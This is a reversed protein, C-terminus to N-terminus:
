QKRTDLKLGVKLGMHVEIEETSNTTYTLQKEAGVNIAAYLTGFDINYLIEAGLSQPHKKQPVGPITLKRNTHASTHYFALTPYSSKKENNPHLGLLIAAKTEFSNADYAAAKGESDFVLYAGSLFMSVKTSNEWNSLLRKYGVKFGTYKTTCSFEKETTSGNVTTSYKYTNAEGEKGRVFGLVLENRASLGLRLKADLVPISKSGHAESLYIINEGSGDHSEYELYHINDQVRATQFSAEIAFKHPELPLAEEGLGSTTLVSSSSREVISCGSILILGTVAVILLCLSKRM